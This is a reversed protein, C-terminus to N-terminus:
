EVEEGFALTVHLVGFHMSEAHVIVSQTRKDRLSPERGKSDLNVPLAAYADIRQEESIMLTALM